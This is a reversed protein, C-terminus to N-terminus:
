KISPILRRSHHNLTKYEPGNDVDSLTATIAWHDENLNKLTDDYTHETSWRVNKFLDFLKPSRKQGIIWYGGDGSPGILAQKQKLAKFASAIHTARIEPIDTGIILVPGPGINLGNNKGRSSLKGIKKFQAHMKEGLDGTGQSSRKPSISNVEPWFPLSLATDPAIAIHTQWRPDISLRKIITNTTRRYFSTAKIPGIDKSLRTKVYGIRPEKVMIVLHQSAQQNKAKSQPSSQNPM